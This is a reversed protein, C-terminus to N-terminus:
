RTDYDHYFKLVSLKENQARRNLVVKHKLGQAALIDCIDGTFCVIAATDCDCCVDGARGHQCLINPILYFVCANLIVKLALIILYGPKNDPLVVLYFVGAPSLLSAIDPLLRDTVQISLFFITSYYISFKFSLIAFIFFFIM